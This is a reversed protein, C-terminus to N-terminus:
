KLARVQGALKWKAQVPIGLHELATRVIDVNATPGDIDGRRVSPGYFILFTRRVV